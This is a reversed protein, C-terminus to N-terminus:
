DLREGSVAHSVLNRESALTFRPAIQPKGNRAQTEFLPKLMTPDYTTKILRMQNEAEKRIEASCYIKLIENGNSRRWNQILNRAKKKEHIYRGDSGRVFAYPSQRRKNALPISAMIFMGPTNRYPHDEKSRLDSIILPYGGLGINRRKGNIVIRQIWSKSGGKAVQLYLGNGDGYMRWTTLKKIKANTLAM